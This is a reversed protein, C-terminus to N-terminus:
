RCRADRTAPGARRRRRRLIRFAFTSNRATCTPAPRWRRTNVNSGTARRAPPVRRARTIASSSYRARCCTSPRRSTCRAATTARACTRRCRTPPAARATSAASRPRHAAFAQWVSFRWGDDVLSSREQTWAAQPGVCLRAVTVFPSADEPWPKSADEIPMTQDDTRLQIKFEWTAERAELGERFFDITAGGIGDPFAMSIM